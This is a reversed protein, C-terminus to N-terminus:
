RRQGPSDVVIREVRVQVFPRLPWILTPMTFREVDTVTLGASRVTAPLDRALHVGRAAPLLAGLSAAVVAMAGPRCGPEVAMMVGHPALMAAIVSVAAGLDPLRALGAVSIVADYRGVEDAALGHDLAHRLVHRHDARGLDLVNSADVQVAAAVM